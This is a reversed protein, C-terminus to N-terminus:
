VFWVERDLDKISMPTGDHYYREQANKKAALSFTSAGLESLSQSSLYSALSSEDEPACLAPTSSGLLLVVVVVIVVVFVFTLDRLPALHRGADLLGPVM